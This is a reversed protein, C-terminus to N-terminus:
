RCIELVYINSTCWTLYVLIEASTVLVPTNHYSDTHFKCVIGAYTVYMTMDAYAQGCFRKYDLFCVFRRTHSGMDPNKPHLVYMYYSPMWTRPWPLRAGPLAWSENRDRIKQLSSVLASTMSGVVTTHEVKLAYVFCAPHWFEWLLIVLFSGQVKSLAGLANKVFMLLLLVFWCMKEEIKAASEFGKLSYAGSCTPKCRFFSIVSPKGQGLGIQAAKSCTHLGNHCPDAYSSTSPM